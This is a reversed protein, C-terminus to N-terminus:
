KFLEGDVGFRLKQLDKAAREYEDMLAGLAGERYTKPM